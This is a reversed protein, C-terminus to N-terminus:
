NNTNIKVELEPLLVPPYTDNIPLIIFDPTPPPTLIEDSILLKIAEPYPTIDLASSTILPTPLDNLNFLSYEAFLSLPLM